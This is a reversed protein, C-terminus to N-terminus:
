APARRSLLSSIGKLWEAYSPSSKSSHAVPQPLLVAESRWEEPKAEPGTETLLEDSSAMAFGAARAANNLKEIGM